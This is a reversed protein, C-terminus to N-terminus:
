TINPHRARIPGVRCGDFTGAPPTAPAQALADSPILIAVTSLAVGAALGAFAKQNM